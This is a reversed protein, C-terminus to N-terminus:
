AGAPGTVSRCRLLAARERPASRVSPRVATSGRVALQMTIQRTHTHQRYQTAYARPPVLRYARLPLTLRVAAVCRQHLTLPACAAGRGVRRVSSTGLRRGGLWLVCVRRTVHSIVLWAGRPTTGSPPAHFGARGAATAGRLTAPQLATPGPPPTQQSVEWVDVTRGQRVAAAGGVKSRLGRTRDHGEYGLPVRRARL